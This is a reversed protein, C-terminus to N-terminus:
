RKVAAVAAEHGDAASGADCRHGTHELARIEHVPARLDRM